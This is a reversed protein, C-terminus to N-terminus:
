EYKYLLVGAGSHPLVTRSCSSYSNCKTHTSHAILVSSMLERSSSGLHVGLARYQFFLKISYEYSYSFISPNSRCISYKRNNRSILIKNDDIEDYAQFRPSLCFQVAAARPSSSRSARKRFHHSGRRRTRNRESSSPRRQDTRDHIREPGTCEYIEM